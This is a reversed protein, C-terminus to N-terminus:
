NVNILKIQSSGPAKLDQVFKLTLNNVLIEVVPLMNKQNIKNVKQDM